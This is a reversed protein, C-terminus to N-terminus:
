NAIQWSLIYPMGLEIIIDAVIRATTEGDEPRAATATIRYFTGAIEGIAGVDARSALVWAYHNEQSGVGTIYFTQTRVTTNDSISPLPPGFEWNLLYAGQADLTEDPEDTSLNEVFNAASGSQYSYGVPIRAGVGELKIAPTGPGAQWTVIITYNYANAGGDWVMEGIVDLYDNHGGPEILEGLYLTYDGKNETQITVEVQNVNDSLQTSPSMGNVLSWLADEVGADAAYAGRVGEGLMRSNKLSATTYGISPILTLGGLILLGLVIPLAQGKEGKVLQKLLRVM